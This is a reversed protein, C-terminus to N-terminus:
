RLPFNALTVRVARLFASLIRPIRSLYRSSGSRSSQLIYEIGENELCRVLLDSTKM